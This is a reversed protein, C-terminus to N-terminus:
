TPISSTPSSLQQSSESVRVHLYLDESAEPPGMGSMTAFGRSFKRKLFSCYIFRSQLLAASEVKRHRRDEPLTNNEVAHLM